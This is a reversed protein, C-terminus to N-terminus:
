QARGRSNEEQWKKLRRGHEEPSLYEIRGGGYLDRTWVRLPHGVVEEMELVESHTLPADIGDKLVIRDIAEYTDVTGRVARPVVSHLKGNLIRTLEEVKRALDNQYFVM